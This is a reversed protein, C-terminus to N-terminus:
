DAAVNARDVDGVDLPITIWFRSGRGPVSDGGIEGGLLAALHKNIALGLGLGGHRRTSTADGQVFPEYLEALREPPVGIGQDEVEFRVCLKGAASEVRVARTTVDGRESFKVANSVFNELAERLRTLDGKLAPPLSPDVERRLQINRKAAKARFPAEARDILRSVVFDRMETRPAPSATSALAMIRDFIGLLDWGAQRIKAVRDQHEPVSALRLLLLEAMGIVVNLPTRVEHSMNALFEGKTRNAAEAADLAIRLDLNVKRLERTRAAVQQELQDRHAEIERRLAERELLNRIRQGVVEISFPKHIYDAAGLSLGEIESDMDSLATVFVIPISALRPDAKFRRCTERGDVAPMMMDLLILDPPSTAAMALGAPGSVAIRFSYEDALATALPVLNEPTDDIALISPRQRTM